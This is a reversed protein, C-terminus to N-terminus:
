HAASEPEGKIIQWNLTHPGRYKPLLSGHLNVCGRKPVSLISEKIIHSYSASIILDPKVRNLVNLFVEPSPRNHYLITIGSATASEEAIDVELGARNVPLVVLPIRVPFTSLLNIIRTVLETYGFIVVSPKM